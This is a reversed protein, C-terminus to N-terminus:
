AVKMFRALLAESKEWLAEALSEDRALRSPTAQRGQEFYAGSIDKVEEATALYVSMRAGAQVPAGGPGFGKHLLKTSIVGPHLSNATVSTGALSRALAVTFLINVLKSTGYAEYGSYRRAFTLDDLDLRGSRHAISSVTIIRGQPAAKLLGLLAHTLLFHAFHNVALTLEFGDVTIVRKPEYVGANNILVDLVPKRDRVQEALALVEHMNALDAYVPEAQSSPIGRQLEEIVSRAKDLTRGHVFVGMGKELLQRATERGIGDTAGTVLGTKM